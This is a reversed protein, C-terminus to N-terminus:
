EALAIGQTAAALCDTLAAIIILGEAPEWHELNAKMVEALGILLLRGAAENGFALRRDAGHGCRHGIQIM